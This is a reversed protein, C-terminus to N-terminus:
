LADAATGIALARQCRQDVPTVVQTGLLLARDPCTRRHEHSAGIEGCGFVDDAPVADVAVVHEVDHRRQYVFRNEEALVVNTRAEAQQLDGPFVTLLAQGLRSIEVSHPPTVAVPVRAQSGPEVGLPDPRILRLPDVPQAGFM